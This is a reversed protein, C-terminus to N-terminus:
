PRRLGETLTHRLWHRRSPLIPMTTSPSSRCANSHMALTSSSRSDTRLLSLKAIYTFHGSPSRTAAPRAMHVDHHPPPSVETPLPISEDTSPLGPPEDPPFSDEPPPDEPSEPVLEPPEPPDSVLEPPEPPHLGAQADPSAQQAPRHTSGTVSGTFQPPQPTVHLAEVGSHLPWHVVGEHM